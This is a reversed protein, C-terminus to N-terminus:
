QARARPTPARVQGNKGGRPPPAGGAASGYPGLLLKVGESNMQEVLRSAVDPTSQDDQYKLVLKVKRDGIPVGGKANVVDACYDYGERTLGGERSLSGSLSLAAGITVNDNTSGAAKGSSKGCASGLLLVAVLVGVRGRM